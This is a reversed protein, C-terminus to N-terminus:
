SVYCNSPVSRNWSSALSNLCGKGKRLLKSHPSPSSAPSLLIFSCTSPARWLHSCTPSHYRLYYHSPVSRNQSSALSVPPARELALFSPPLLPHTPLRSHSPHPPPLPYCPCSFSPVPLLPFSGIPELLCCYLPPSAAREM